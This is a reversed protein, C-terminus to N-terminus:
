WDIGEEEELGENSISSDTDISESSNTISDVSSEKIKPVKLEVLPITIEQKFFGIAQSLIPFLCGICIVTSLLVLSKRKTM